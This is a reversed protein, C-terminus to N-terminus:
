FDKSTLGSTLNKGGQGHVVPGAITLSIIEHINATADAKRRTPVHRRVRHADEDPHDYPQPQEGDANQQRSAVDDSPLRSMDM